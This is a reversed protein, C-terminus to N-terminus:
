DRIGQSYANKVDLGLGHRDRAKHSPKRGGRSRVFSIYCYLCITVCQMAVALLSSLRGAAAVPNHAGLKTPSLYLLFYFDFSTLQM